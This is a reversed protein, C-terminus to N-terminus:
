LLAVSVLAAYAAASGAWGLEDVLHWPGVSGWQLVALAAVSLLLEAFMSLYRPRHYRAAREVEEHSFDLSNMRAYVPYASGCRSQPAPHRCGGFRRPGDGESRTLLRDRERRLEPLEGADRGEDRDQRARGGVEPEPVTRMEADPLGHGRAEAHDNTEAAQDVEDDATENRPRAEEAGLLRPEAFLVDDIAASGPRPPEPVPDRDEQARDDGDEPDGMEVVRRMAGPRARRCPDERLEAVQ